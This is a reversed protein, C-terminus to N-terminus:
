RAPWINSVGSKSCRNIDVEYCNEKNHYNQWTGNLNSIANYFVIYKTCYLNHSYGDGEIMLIADEPSKAPIPLM